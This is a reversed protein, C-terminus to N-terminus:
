VKFLVYIIGSETMKSLLTYLFIVSLQTCTSSEWVSFAWGLPVLVRRRGLLALFGYSPDSGRECGFRGWCRLLPALMVEEARSSAALECFSPFTESELHALVSSSWASLCHTERNGGKLVFVELPASPHSRRCQVRQNGCGQSPCLFSAGHAPWLQWHGDSWSM